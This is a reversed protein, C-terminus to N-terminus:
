QFLYVQANPLRIRKGEEDRLDFNRAPLNAQQYPLRWPILRTIDLPLITPGELSEGPPDLVRYFTNITQWDPRGTTNEALSDRCEDSWGAATLFESYAPDRTTTMFSGQCDIRRLYLKGQPQDPDAKLGVYNDPLFLLHHALEHALARWWQEGLDGTNEGFPDWSTGMRVQGPLYASAVVETPDLGYGPRVVDGVPGRVVGGIAASPRMSNNAYIIVDARNWFTKAPLIHVRGLAVQGETVDFLIESARQFSEELALMFLADQTVDWEVSVTLDFLLLPNVAGDPDTPVTLTVVGTEDVTKMALGDDSPAASTFYFHYQDTFPIPEPSTAPLLAVLRDGQALAGRGPVFGQADTALPNLPDPMLQAGAHAGQRLRYVFAGELAQGGEDLVQVQAGRLRFLATAAPAYPWPAPGGARGPYLYAGPEARGRPQAYLEFRVLVSDSIGFVGTALTDWVFEYPEGAPSAALNSTVIDERPVAARWRGGGDLSYFAALRGVADGERDYLMLPISVYRDQLIRPSFHLGAAPTAAPYGATLYPPNNVLGATSRLRNLRLRSPRAYAAGRSVLLDVMGDGDLDGLALGSTGYDRLRDLRLPEDLIGSGDNLYAETGYYLGLVLDLDGDGDLDGAALDQVSKFTGFATGPSLDGGGTNYYVQNRDSSRNGVVVDLRGDGNLDALALGVTDDVKGFPRAEPFSGRSDNLYLRNQEATVYGDAGSSHGNGVVLDIHGDQNLDGAALSYTADSGPGFPRATLNGPSEADNLYLYNQGLNGVVVDLHGNGDVDALIVSRSRAEASGLPVPEGLAFSSSSSDSFYIYNQGENAQVVDLRDDGNLDGLALDYANAEPGFRYVPCAADALCRGDNLYVTNPDQGGGLMVVDLTGNADMDGLAVGRSTAKPGIEVARGYLGQIERLYVWVEAGQYNGVVIDLVGDGNFDAVAVSTTTNPSGFGLPQGFAGQGDNMLVLNRDPVESNGAAAVLDQFGDGDLDALTVAVIDTYGEATVELGTGFAGSGDNLYVIEPAELGTNVEVLDLFGDGDLDGVALGETWGEAGFAQARDLGLDGSGDNLYVLNPANLYGAIVDLSGDGDVDALAVAGAGQGADLAPLSRAAEPGDFRGAQDNIFVQIAQCDGGGTTCSNGTVIDLYGDGNLDGAAVSRTEATESGFLHAEALKGAGDNIYVENQGGYVGAVLDLAGDGNVDALAVARGTSSAAFERTLEESGFRGRGDNFYILNPGDLNWAGGGVVIDIFGDGNLDGAAVSWTNDKGGLPQASLIPLPPLEQEAEESPTEQLAAPGIPSEQASAAAPLLPWLALLAMVMSLLISRYPRRRGTGGQNAHPYTSM